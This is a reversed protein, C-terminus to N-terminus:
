YLIFDGKSEIVDYVRNKMSNVLNVALEPPLTKWQKKIAHALARPTKLKKKELSTKVLKWVNEIPNVDPSAAPWDINKVGNEAKWNKALKSTHKPDNDELLKWSTSGAGFHDRATPLLGRKYIDCMLKANLNQKFCKIRGFGKSSFCGWVNVKVPHKVTRIVKKKGPLNWVRRKSRNLYVTMEDSFIVRDWNTLRHRKAWKLRSKRHDETLLPKSMPLDYKARAERLRRWVTTRSIKPRKKKLRDEIDSTTAFMEENALSLIKKDQKPTTKRSRGSRPLTALDKTDKWRNLWYKVANKDCKVAKAVAKRGLQPGLPHCSLFVIEYRKHIPLAM